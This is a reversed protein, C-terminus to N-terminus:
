YASASWPRPPRAFLRWLGAEVMREVSLGAAV